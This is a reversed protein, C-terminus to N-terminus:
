QENKVYKKRRKQIRSRIKGFAITPLDIGDSNLSYEDLSLNSTVSGGVKPGHLHAYSTSDSQNRMWKTDKRKGKQTQNM